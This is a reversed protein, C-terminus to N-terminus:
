RFNDGNKQVTTKLRSRSWVCSDTRGSTSAGEAWDGPSSVCATTFLGLHAHSRPRCVSHPGVHRHTALKVMVNHEFLSAPLRSLLVGVGQAFCFLSFVSSFCVCSLAIVHLVQRPLGPSDLRRHTNPRLAAAQPLHNQQPPLM